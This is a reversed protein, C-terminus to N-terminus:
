PKFVAPTVFKKAEASTVVLLYGETRPTNPGLMTTVTPALKMFLQGMVMRPKNEILWTAAVVASLPCAIVPKINLLTMPLLRPGCKKGSPDKAIRMHNSVMRRFPTLMLRLSYRLTPATSDMTSTAAADTTNHASNLRPKVSCKYHLLLLCVADVHIDFVKLIM